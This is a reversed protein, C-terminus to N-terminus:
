GIGGDLDSRAALFGDDGRGLIRGAERIEPAAPLRIDIRAHDGIVAELLFRFGFGIFIALGVLIPVTTQGQLPAIQGQRHRTTDDHLALGLTAAAKRAHGVTGAPRPIPICAFPGAPPRLAAGPAAGSIVRGLSLALSSDM